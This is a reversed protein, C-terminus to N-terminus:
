FDEKTVGISKVIKIIESRTISVFGYDTYLGIGDAFLDADYIDDCAFAISKIPYPLEIMGKIYIGGDVNNVCGDNGIICHKNEAAFIYKYTDNEGGEIYREAWELYPKYKDEIM